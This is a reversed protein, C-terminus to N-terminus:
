ENGGLLVDPTGHLVRPWGLRHGRRPQRRVSALRQADVTPCISGDDYVWQQGCPIHVSLETIGRRLAADTASLKWETM